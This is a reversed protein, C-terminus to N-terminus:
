IGVGAVASVREQTSRESGAKGVQLKRFVRNLYIFLEEAGFICRLAKAKNCDQLTHIQSLFIIYKTITLEVSLSVLLGRREM